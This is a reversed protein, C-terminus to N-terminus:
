EEQGTIQKVDGSGNNGCTKQGRMERPEHPGHVPQWGQGKPCRLFVIPVCDERFTMSQNKTLIM